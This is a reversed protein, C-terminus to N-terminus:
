AEVYIKHHNRPLFTTDRLYLVNESLRVRTVGLCFATVNARVDSHVLSCLLVVLKTRLRKNLGGRAFLDPGWVVDVALSGTEVTM